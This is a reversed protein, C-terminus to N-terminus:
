ASSARWACVTGRGKLRRTIGTRGPAIPASLSGSCRVSLLPSPNLIPPLHFRWWPISRGPFMLAYALASMGGLSPGMVTNVRDIGLCALAAHASSAIDEVTLTPFALAYPKHTDPNESAPGTSGFCSGLSNICVVHFRGTDLPKGPGVMEEWWGPMPDAPSCAAHASPSLGTFLLLVNSRDPALHGWTECAVQARELVGGQRMRFPASLTVRRTAGTVQTLSRLSAQMDPMDGSKFSRM